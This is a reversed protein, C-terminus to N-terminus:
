ETELILSATALLYGAHEPGTVTFALENVPKLDALEVSIQRLYPTNDPTIAPPLTYPKGNITVVGEGDALREAVFRLWARTATHLAGAEVRITDNVPKTHTVDALITRAFFQKQRVQPKDGVTGTLPFTLVVIDRGAITDNFAHPSGTKATQENILLRGDEDPIARRVIVQDFRAGDPARVTLQVPRPTWSENLIAVVLETRQPLSAPRPNQPDAGDIAAVLHIDPDPNVVHLLKGRLNMLLTLAVGEGTDSFWGGGIGFWSYSRAKDPVYRLSHLLKITTWRFKNRDAQAGRSLEPTDPYAQPDSGMATETNFSYLWKNHRTVGYATILEHSAPMKTPGGGYDHECVGDIIDIGADITDKYLQHFGAWHDESPRNGWGAIFVLKDGAAEKMPRGYALMPEIYPKLMGKGSWYTFQTEDYVHWPTFATYTRSNEATYTEGDKIDDPPNLKRCEARWRPPNWGGYPMAWPLTWRGREDRGRRWQQLNECWNWPPANFDRTWRLHPAPEGDFKIHVPGGETARTEDFFNPDFNKRNINAWNLYPENWFEVYATRGDARVAEGFARGDDSYRQRWNPDSFRKSPGTRDGVTNIMMHTIADGYIPRSQYGGHNIRRDQALRYHTVRSVKRGDIEMEKLNFGGFLGAPITTTGNIDLLKGTLELAVTAPPERPLSVLELGTVTFSLRGIGLPNVCGIAVASIADLDLRMNDDFHTGGPPSMHDTTTFDEFRALGTNTPQTLNAAWPHYYWTGDSERIAVYVGADARPRETTATVRIAHFKTLDRPKDFELVSWRAHTWNARKVGMDLDFRQGTEVVTAGAFVQKKLDVLPAPPEAARAALTAVVLSGALIAGFFKARMPEGKTM